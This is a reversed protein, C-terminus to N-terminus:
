ILAIEKRFAAKWKKSSCGPSAVLFGGGLLYARLNKREAPRLEFSGEGSLVAFPHDFLKESDADVSEFGRGTWINTKAQVDALFHDAFCYSTKRGPGYVLNACQVRGPRPPEADRGAQETPVSPGQALTAGILCAAVALPGVTWLFRKM